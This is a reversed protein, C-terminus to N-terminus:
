SRLLSTRSGLQEKLDALFNESSYNETVPLLVVLPAGKKATFQKVDVDTLFPNTSLSFFGPQPSAAIKIEELKKIFNDM